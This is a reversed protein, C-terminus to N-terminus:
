YFQKLSPLKVVGNEVLKELRSDIDQWYDDLIIKKKM